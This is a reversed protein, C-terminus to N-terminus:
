IFGEGCLIQKETFLDKTERANYPDKNETSNSSPLNAERIVGV